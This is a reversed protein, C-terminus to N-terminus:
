DAENRERSQSPSSADLDDSARMKRQREKTECEAELDEIRRCLYDISGRRELFAAFALYGAHGHRSLIASVFPQFFHMTQSGIFNLPRSMELAALGPTTLHRKVIQGCVWDVVEKEEPTPEVPGPPDVHFAHKIWNM